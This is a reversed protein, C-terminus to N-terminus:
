HEDETANLVDGIIDDLDVANAMAQYGADNPHLHDGDYAPLLRTPDSPDRLAADFDVVADFAGSTRIWNNLKQREQEGAPTGYDGGYVGNSGGFPLLTGGYIKLGAAHAAHIMQLDVPILDEAKASKDGIDNIGELLIIARAKTQLLADRDLRAPAPYGFELQPRITLLENGIIGANEVAMTVGHKAALKRALFDPYRRNANTTSLYGDTISDGFAVLSGIVRSSTQVDVASVFMWCSIKHTFPTAGLVATQDGAALYNTQAAFYHQTTPGTANPLYVSIDLEQLAKVDMDVPDSVAEAGAAILISSQGHFLLPHLTGAVATAVTGSSAIAVTASGVKLPVSGGANSIRVRVSEGGMSMYVVNRVTQNNLGVDSPCGPSYFTGGPTPSGQWAAVWREGREEAFSLSTLAFLILALFLKNLISVTTARRSNTM